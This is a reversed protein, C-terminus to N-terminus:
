LGVLRGMSGVQKPLPRCDAARSLPGLTAPRTVPGSDIERTPGPGLFLAPRIARDSQGTCRAAWGPSTKQHRATQHQSNHCSAPWRTYAKRSNQRRYINAGKTRANLNPTTATTSLM